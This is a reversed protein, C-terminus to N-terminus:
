KTLITIDKLIEPKGFKSFNNESKWINEQIDGSPKARQQDKRRSTHGATKEKRRRPFLNSIKPQETAETQRSEHQKM